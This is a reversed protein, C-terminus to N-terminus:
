YLVKKKKQRYSKKNGNIVDDRCEVCYFSSGHGYYKKDCLKCIKSTNNLKYPKGTTRMHKNPLVRSSVGQLCM